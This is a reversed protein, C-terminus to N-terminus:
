RVKVRLIADDDTSPASQFYRRLAKKIAEHQTHTITPGSQQHVNNSDDKTAFDALITSLYDFTGSANDESITGNLSSEDGSSSGPSPVKQAMKVSIQHVLLQSRFALLRSPHGQAGTTNRM